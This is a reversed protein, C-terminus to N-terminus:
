DDFVKGEIYDSRISNYVGVIDKDVDDPIEELKGEVCVKHLVVHMVNPIPTTLVYQGAKATKDCIMCQVGFPAIGKEILVVKM